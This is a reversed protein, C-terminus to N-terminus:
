AHQLLRRIWRRSPRPPRSFSSPAGRTWRSRRSPAFAPVRRRYIAASRHEGDCGCAAHLRYRGTRRRANAKGPQIISLIDNVIEARARQTRGMVTASAPETIGAAASLPVTTGIRLIRRAQSKLGIGSRADALRPVAEATM